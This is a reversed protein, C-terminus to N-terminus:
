APAPIRDAGLLNKLLDYLAAAETESPALRLYATEGDVVRLRGGSQNSLKEMRKPSRYTLVLDSPGFGGEPPRELHVSVVQWRAALLRVEAQRL